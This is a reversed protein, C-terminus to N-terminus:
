DLIGDEFGGVDQMDAIFDELLMAIGLRIVYGAGGAGLEATADSGNIFTIM